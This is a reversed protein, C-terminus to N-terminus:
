YFLWDINSKEGLGADRSKLQKTGDTFGLILVAGRQLKLVNEGAPFTYTHINVPPQGTIEM